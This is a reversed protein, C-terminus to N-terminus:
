KIVYPYIEYLFKVAFESKFFNYRDALSIKKFAIKELIRLCFFYLKSKLDPILTFIRTLHHKIM